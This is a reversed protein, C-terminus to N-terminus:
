RAEADAAETGGSSAEQAAAEGGSGDAGADSSADGAEPLAQALELLSMQVPLARRPPPPLIEAIGLMKAVRDSPEAGHMIWKKIREVKLTVQKNGHPDPIPNYSGLIEFFKGDRPGDSRPCAVIRYFPRHREGLRQLRIRVSSGSAFFRGM